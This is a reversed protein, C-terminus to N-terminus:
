AYVSRLNHNKVSTVGLQMGNVECLRQLDNVSCRLRVAPLCGEIGHM